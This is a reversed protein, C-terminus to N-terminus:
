RSYYAESGLTIAVVLIVAIALVILLRGFKPSGEDGVPQEEPHNMRNRQPDKASNEM